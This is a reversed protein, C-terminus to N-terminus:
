RVVQVSQFIPLYISVLMFGVVLGLVVIVIPEIISVLSNIKTDIMSEFFDASKDLVDKLNGSSEGVRIIETMLGPIVDIDSLADSLLNGKKIQEPVNKVKSFLYENSFSEIAIEVSEPVPIGGSILISLTRSFVAMSNERIIKGIFPIKLKLYDFIIVKQNFKEVFKLSAYIIFFIFFLSLINEKLWESVSIFIVTIAPLEAEFSEFFSSFKPIVVVMIVFVILIMFIFLCLPYSLSSITKRKINNIKGLYINFKEIISEIAGSKEGALISARYIKYFPIKTSYFADSIQIGNRIDSEVKLLIEKFNSKKMNTLIVGLANIFSTGSKLLVVMKQNFLLFESYKIKRSFLRFTSFNKFYLRKIKILKKDGNQFSSKLDNKNENFIIKDNFKGNENVFVCKYYPM